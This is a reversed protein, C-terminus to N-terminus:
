ALICKKVAIHYILDNAVWLTLFDEFYTFIDNKEPIKKIKTFFEYKLGNWFSYLVM